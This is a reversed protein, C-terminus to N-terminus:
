RRSFAQEGSGAEDAEREEEMRAAVREVEEPTAGGRSRRWSMEDAYSKMFMEAFTGVAIRRPTSTALGMEHQFKELLDEVSQGALYFKREGPMHDMEHGQKANSVTMGENGEFKAVIDVIPDPLQPHEYVAAVTGDVPRVFGMVQLGPMEPITFMGESAFGFAELRRKAEDVNGPARWHISEVKELTITDPVDGLGGADLNEVADKLGTVFKRIKYRILFFAAVGLVILLIFLGGLIKLMIDM